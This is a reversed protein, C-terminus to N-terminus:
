AEKKSRTQHVANKKAKNLKTLQRLHERQWVLMWKWIDNKTKNAKKLKELQKKEKLAATVIRGRQRKTLKPFYKYFELRSLCYSGTLAHIEDVSYPSHVLYM